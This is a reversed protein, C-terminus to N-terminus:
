RTPSVSGRVLPRAGQTHRRDRRRVPPVPKDRRLRAIEREAYADLVANRRGARARVQWVFGVAATLLVAAAFLTPMM